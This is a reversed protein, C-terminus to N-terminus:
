VNNTKYFYDLQVVSVILLVPVTVPKVLFIVTRVSMLNLTKTNEM